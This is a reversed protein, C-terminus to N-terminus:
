LIVAFAVSLAPLLEGDDVAILMVILLVVAVSGAGIIELGALPVIVLSLVGM